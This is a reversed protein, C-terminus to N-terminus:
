EQDLREEQHFELLFSEAQRLELGVKERPVYDLSFPFGPLKVYGGFKQKVKAGNGLACAV